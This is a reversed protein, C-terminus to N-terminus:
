PLNCLIRVVVVVADAADISSYIRRHFIQYCHMGIWEMLRLKRHSAVRNVKLERHWPHIKRAEHQNCINLRAGEGCWEDDASWQHSYKERKQVCAIIEDFRVCVSVRLTFSRSRHSFVVMANNVYFDSIIENKCGNAYYNNHILHLM